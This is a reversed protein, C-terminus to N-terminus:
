SSESICRPRLALWVEGYTLAHAQLVCGASTQGNGPQYGDIRPAFMAADRCRQDLFHFPGNYELRCILALPQQAEGLGRRPDM